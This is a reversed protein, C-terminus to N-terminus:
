QLLLSVKPYNRDCFEYIYMLLSKSNDFSKISPLINLLKLDFGFQKGKKTGSNMHNGFALIISFM